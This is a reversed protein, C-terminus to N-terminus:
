LFVLVFNNNKYIVAWIIWLVMSECTTTSPAFRLNRGTSILALMAAKPKTDSNNAVPGPESILRGKAITTIPPKTVEVSSLSTNNGISYKRKPCLLFYADFQSPINKPMSVLEHSSIETYHLEM